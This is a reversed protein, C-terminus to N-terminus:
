RHLLAPPSFVSPPVYSPPATLSHTTASTPQLHAFCYSDLSLMSFSPCFGGAKGSEPIDVLLSFRSQEYPKTEHSLCAEALQDATLCGFHRPPLKQIGLLSSQCWKRRNPRLHSRGPKAILKQFALTMLLEDVPFVSPFSVRSVIALLDVM